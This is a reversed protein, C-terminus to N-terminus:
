FIYTTKNKVPEHDFGPKKLKRVNIPFLKVRDFRYM